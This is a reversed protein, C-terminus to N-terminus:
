KLMDALFLRTVAGATNPAGIKQRARTSHAEVTRVSCGMLDATEKQTRGCALLGFAETQRVTLKFKACEDRLKQPLSNM